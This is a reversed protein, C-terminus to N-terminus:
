ETEEGAETSAEGGAAAEEGAGEAAEGSVARAGVVTVVTFNVDFPIEIDGEPRIDEVHISDGMDLESIDIVISDPIQSPLCVVDLERRIFQLTGGAEVGKSVGTIEVPVTTSIKQDMRVEYFDLHLYNQTIPDAQIEKIMVMKEFSQGNDVRLNILAQSYSIKNLLLEIDHTDVALSVSEIDSGYLIAPLKGERRLTRAVGKGSSTRINANLKHIEL